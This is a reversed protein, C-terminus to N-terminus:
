LKKMAIKNEVGGTFSNFLNALLDIRRFHPNSKETSLLRIRIRQISEKKETIRKKTPRCRGVSRQCRRTCTTPKWNLRLRTTPDATLSFFLSSLFATAM